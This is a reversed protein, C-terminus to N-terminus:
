CLTPKGRDRRHIPRQQQPLRGGDEWQSRRRGGASRPEGRQPRGHRRVVPREDTVDEPVDMGLIDVSRLGHPPGKLLEGHRRTLVGPRRGLAIEPGEDAGDTTASRPQTAHQM